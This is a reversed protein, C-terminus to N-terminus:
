EKTGGLKELSKRCSAAPLWVVKRHSMTRNTSRPIDIRPALTMSICVAPSRWVIWKSALHTQRETSGWKGWLHGHPSGIRPSQQHGLAEVAEMSPRLLRESASTSSNIPSTNRLYVAVWGSSSLTAWFSLLLYVDFQKEMLWVRSSNREFFHLIINYLITYYLIYMCVSMCVSLCVYM